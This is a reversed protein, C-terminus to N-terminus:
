GNFMALSLCIPFVAALYPGVYPLYRLMAALFGWLLAYKVGIMLLGLGLALGFTGNVLAQMLLFRSIRAAAEDVFKTATVIRGHGALRIVRNRLEERKQLMFIVLIIALVLEGLYEMLPALYSTVRSLWVPISTQPEIVVATPRGAFLGNEADPERETASTKSSKPDLEENIDVLFKTLRSSSAAVKKLSKVKDKVNQTYAPLERILGSVQSTVVWGVIGLGLAALCVTLIVAPTRRLGHQGLWSVLPSLLFTLFAALAVPILIAQGWYLITIAVVSVVIGTLIIIARQWSTGVSAKIM